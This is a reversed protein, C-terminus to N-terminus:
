ELTEWVEKLEALIAENKSVEDAEWASIAYSFAMKWGLHNCICAMQDEILKYEPDDTGSAGVTILGAKKSIGQAKLAKFQGDKCYLKDIATKLQASMGWWYVPTGFIVVDADYMKQILATSEDPQVCKGGNSKCSECAVCGSLQHKTVDYFELVEPKLGKEIGECVAKLATRTNGQMRPSGNLVLVKM